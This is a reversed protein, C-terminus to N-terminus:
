RRSSSPTSELVPSTGFDGDMWGHVAMCVGDGDFLDLREVVAGTEKEELRVSVSVRVRHTENALAGTVGDAVGMIGYLANDIAGLASERTEGALKPDLRSRAFDRVDALLIAGAAHQLWLERARGPPPPPALVRQKSVVAPKKKMTTGIYTGVVGSLSRSTGDEGPATLM